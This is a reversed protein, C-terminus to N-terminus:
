SNKILQSFTMQNSTKLSKQVKDSSKHRYIEVHAEYFAATFLPSKVMANLAAFPAKGCPRSVLVALRVIGACPSSSSKAKAISLLRSVTCVSPTDRSPLEPVMIRFSQLNEALPHHLVLLLENKVDHFLIIWFIKVSVIGCLFFCLGNKSSSVMRIPYGRQEVKQRILFPPEKSSLSM